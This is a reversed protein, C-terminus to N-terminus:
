NVVGPFAFIGAIRTHWRDDLSHEVVGRPKIAHIIGIDTIIGAHCIAKRSMRITVVDGPQATDKPILRRAFESHIFEDVPQPGYNRYDFITILRDQVDVLDLEQAVCLPLGICDIVYRKVRGQHAFPTGLYERAKAVIQARTPMYHFSHFWFLAWFTNTAM